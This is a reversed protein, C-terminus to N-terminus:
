FKAAKIGPLEGDFRLLIRAVKKKLIEPALM